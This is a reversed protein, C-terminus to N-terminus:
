VGGFRYRYGFTIGLGTAASTGASATGIRVETASRNRWVEFGLFFGHHGRALMADAGLVAGLQVHSASGGPIAGRPDISASLREMRLGARPRFAVPGAHLTLGVAASGTIWGVDASDAGGPQGSVGLTLRAFVPSATQFGGELYGGLQVGSGVGPAGFAGAGLWPGPPEPDSAGSARPSAPAPADSASDSAGPPQAANGNSPAPPSAKPPPESPGTVGAAPREEAAAALSALEGALTAITLGVARWREVREDSAGFVLTRSQWEPRADKQRIAVEIGVSGEKSDKWRVIAVAATQAHEGETEPSAECRGEKISASCASVLAHLLPAPPNPPSVEVVVVPM